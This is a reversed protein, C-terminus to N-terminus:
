RDFRVFMGQQDFVLDRGDVLDVEYNGNKEKSIENIGAGDMNDNLYSDIASPYFGSPVTQGAPADVDKWEGTSSFEVKHGNALTVDYDNHDKFAMYEVSPYYTALFTKAAAPIETVVKDDDDDCSWFGMAMVAVLLFPIFKLFKKM